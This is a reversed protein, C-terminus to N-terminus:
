TILSNIAGLINSTTALAGPTVTFHTCKMNLNFTSKDTSSYGYDLQSISDIRVGFLTYLTGKYKNDGTLAKVTMTYGSSALEFMPQSTFFTTITSYLYGQADNIVQISFDHDWDYNVPVEIKRGDYSVESTSMKLGPISISQIYFSVEPIGSFNVEFNHTTQIGLKNVTQLFNKLTKESSAATTAQTVAGLLGGLDLAM